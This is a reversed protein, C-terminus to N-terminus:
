RSLLSDAVARTLEPRSLVDTSDVFQDVTGLLPLSSIDPDSIRASLAASFREAHLVQFPRGHYPRRAPDVPDTLGLQNHAAAVTEYARAVHHERTRWDRAALAETLAPTLAPAQLTRAFASGLWKSYPPYRREMLLCLRMLDRVLRAAVVASGLEDGVEGCRGVFAEEQSIRQWQCALLYLWLDHPYWGLEARAPELRGLGDHFVAGATVEALLQTPTALWDAATIDECPDFGLHATFWAEPDTVEVRHHVPGDTTRMVRIDADGTPAFHTPYGRFTKPLREALLTTMRAGDRAVDRPRLFIQLRPGWEHDASRATDFGLVESGSGLRAASHPIGPAAEDLLPRVAEVYFHRSLELGPVFPPTTM